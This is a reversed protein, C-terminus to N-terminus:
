VGDLAALFDGPKTILITEKHYVNLLNNELSVMFVRISPDEVLLHLSPPLHDGCCHQNIIVTDPKFTIIEHILVDIDDVPLINIVQWNDNDTFLYQFSSGLIDDGGLVIAIKKSRDINELSLTM